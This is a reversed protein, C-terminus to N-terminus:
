NRSYQPHVIINNAGAVNMWTGGLFEAMPLCQNWCRWQSNCEHHSFRRCLTNQNGSTTLVPDNVVNVMVTTSYIDECGNETAYVFLRYWTTVSLPDTTFSSTTGGTESVNQWTGLATSDQWQYQINPSGSAVANLTWTGGVCMDTGIPQSSISIDPFVTV